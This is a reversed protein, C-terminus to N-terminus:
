QSGPESATGPQLAAPAGWSEDATFTMDLVTAPHADQLNKLTMSRYGDLMPLGDIHFDSPLVVHVLVMRSRGPQVVRVFMKQIPLGALSQEVIMTAEQVIAQSPARNLLEMLAKWAMRVPVSISISVVILVLAPDVYPLLFKLSSNKLAFVCIFALLVTFSIAGNVLWNEADALVLPSKTQRGAKRTILAMSGCALAAFVGYVIAMGPAINRGGTFLAEVAGALAMISIGFVLVGKIGNVLPEFYAYGFPFEEDDGAQVLAAVKLTFLGAAFYALNFLGDLMIAQSKSLASFAIGVCGLVLTALASYKLARREQAGRVDYMGM